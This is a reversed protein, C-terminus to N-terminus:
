YKLELYEPKKGKNNMLRIQTPAISLIIYNPDDPGKFWHEFEENWLKRKLDNSENISAKGEIELFSDGLGEGEYGILIHVYPNKEIEEVKHTEKSTATYLNLEDHFFTMYRSHPKNYQVTAMTGLKNKDLIKLVKDKMEQQNM